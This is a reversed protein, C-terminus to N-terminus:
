DSYFGCVVRMTPFELGGKREKIRVQSKKEKERRESLKKEKKKWRMLAEREVEV